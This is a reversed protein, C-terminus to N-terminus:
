INTKDLWTEAFLKCENWITFSLQYNAILILISYLVYKGGKGLRSRCNSRWCWGGQCSLALWCSRQDWRMLLACTTRKPFPVRSTLSSILLSRSFLSNQFAFLGKKLDHFHFFLDLWVWFLSNQLCSFLQKIWHLAYYWTCEVCKKQRTVCGLACKRTLSRRGM